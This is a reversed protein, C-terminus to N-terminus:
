EVFRSIIRMQNTGSARGHHSPRYDTRQTNFSILLPRQFNVHDHARAM